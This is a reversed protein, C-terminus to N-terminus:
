LNKYKEVIEKQRLTLDKTISFCLGKCIFDNKIICMAMRKWTCLDQKSDIGPLEDLIKNAKIVEKDGNGRKSFTHTNTYSGPATSEIERIFDARVPCGTGRWYKIFKIFKRRYNNATEEPLTQLLFKCFSKWTHGKPLTYAASMIKKGSYINGFNAGSVRNVVRAWTEPEIVRFLNLGAKAENGFPEDVRMQALSLGARYFLDYLTNYPKNFKGYYIWDDEAAWDYIPYFSYVNQWMEQSWSIDEGADSIYNNKQSNEAAIARWRNLSEDTRIGVLQATKKGKGYWQGFYLIFKEFPMKERYFEFKHNKLNVVWKNEPMPRVWIPEKDPQWWIWTPELYSLSNPSEMPLCVWYPELVDENESFMKEVYDITKQYFAELDIFLVGLKRRRKRAIDIAMNLVAGSDKGGSFSVCVREFEDFVLNLREQAAEYVNKNIYLKNM